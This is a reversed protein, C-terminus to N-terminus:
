RNTLKTGICANYAEKVDTLCPSEIAKSWLIEGRGNYVTVGNGRLRALAGDGRFLFVVGAGDLLMFVVWDPPIGVDNDEKLKWISHLRYFNDGIRVGDQGKIWMFYNGVLMTDFGGPLITEGDYPSVDLADQSGQWKVADGELIDPLGVGAQELDHQPPLPLPIGNDEKHNM